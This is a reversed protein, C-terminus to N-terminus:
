VSFRFFTVDGDKMEYEKGELSVLNKQKLAGYSGERKLDDYKFIEARIFGREMDTHIKGAAQPAKTGKSILWARSETPGATFFCILGLLEQGAKALKALGPSTIGADEYYSNRDELPLELIEAELKTSLVIVQTKEKEALERLPNLMDDCPDGESTNAVYLIPKMTLFQFEGVIDESLNLSRASKGDNFGKIAIDLAEIKNKASQDGSKAVKMLRDYVKEAQQLDALLLETEITEAAHIPNLDGTANVINEDHFCRVVHCIADVNRINALFKNGLGEGQSAGKVIGAIDVFRIGSPTIKASEFEKALYTLREDALPVIGINPEITTFPFNEAAVGAGTLANFLTSKGVNPLGVIGIEM